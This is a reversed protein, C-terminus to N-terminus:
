AKTKQYSLQINTIIRELVETFSVGYLQMIYAYAHEDEPPGFSPSSAMDVIYPNGNLDLRIDFKAIHSMKYTYFAKLVLAELKSDSYPVLDHNLSPDLDESWNDEFTVINYKYSKNPFIAKSLFVSKPANELVIATIEDGEIYNEVIVPQSYNDILFGIRKRLHKEDLSVADDTIEVSGHVENLKSIVPFKLNSSIPDDKTYFLQCEPTPINNSKLFVKSLYKNYTLTECFPDAGNSPIDVLRLYAPITCAMSEEGRVSGAYNLIMDPKIKLINKPLNKDGPLLIPEIGMKVLYNAISQCEKFVDKETIYLVETPFYERKADSYVLVIKKPLTIKTNLTDSYTRDLTSKLTTPEDQTSLAQLGGDNKM